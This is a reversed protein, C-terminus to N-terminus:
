DKNKRYNLKKLNDKIIKGVRHNYNKSLVSLAYRYKYFAEEKKNQFHYVEGIKNLSYAKLPNDKLIKSVEYGREFYEMAKDLQEQNKYCDGVHCLYAIFKISKNFKKTISLGKKFVLLANEFDGQSFYKFGFKDIYEIQNSYNLGIQDIIQIKEPIAELINFMKNNYNEREKQDGMAEYLNAMNELIKIKLTILSLNDAIDLAEKYNKFAEEYNQQKHFMKGLNKLYKAKGYLDGLKETLKIASKYKIYANPYKKEKEYVNGINNLISAQLSTDNVKQSINLAEEFRNLAEQYKELYSLSEGIYNLTKAILYDNKITQNITKANEFFDLAKEFESQTILIIGINLLSIAEWKKSNQQQSIKLMENGCKKAEEYKDLNKYINFAINLKEISDPNRINNQLWNSFNLSFNEGNLKFDIEILDKIIRATNGFVQFVQNIDNNKKVDELINSIKNNKISNKNSNVIIEYTKEKSEDEEVHDLWIVKNLKPLVKLTPIIDFDDSGSYGMVVLTRDNSINEFFPRKFPEIQFVNLGEKNSGFAQITTVLSNRTDSGTIINKTSGHIKYIFRKRKNLLSSPNYYKEYDEKTIVPIIKDTPLNFKLLAYEILFDFNTTMVFHGRLLREALFYHNRNPYRCLGLYDILRLEPDLNDRIIEVLQEFRIDRLNLLKQIESEPCTFKIIKEMMKRGTPLCSPPDSSCGSGVLFTLKNENSILDKFTLQTLNM